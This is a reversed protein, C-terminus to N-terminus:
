HVCVKAIVWSADPADGNPWWSTTQDCANAQSVDTALDYEGKTTPATFTFDADGSKGQGLTGNFVCGMRGGTMDFGIEIQDICGCRTETLAYHFKADLSDGPAANLMQGENSINISSLTITMAGGMGARIQTITQSPAAPADGCLWTDVDDCIGDRDEDVCADIMHVDIPRTGDGSAVDGGSM